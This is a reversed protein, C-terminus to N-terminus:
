SSSCIYLIIKFLIGISIADLDPFPIGSARWFRSHVEEWRINVVQPENKFFITYSQGNKYGHKIYGEKCRKWEANYKDTGDM